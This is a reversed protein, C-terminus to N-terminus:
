WFAVSCPPGRWDESEASRWVHKPAGMAMLLVVSAEADILDGHTTTIADLVLGLGPVFRRGSRRRQQGGAAKGVYKSLYRAAARPDGGRGTTLRRADVFGHGWRAAVASKPVFCNTAFHVHLRGNESGREIVYLYRWKPFIARMRRMFRAMDAIVAREDAPAVAYTLTWLRDLGNAVCLRRCKTKARRAAEKESREPDPPKGSPLRAPRDTDVLTIVAEAAKPYCTAQWRYRGTSFHQKM